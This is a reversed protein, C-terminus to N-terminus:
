LDFQSAHTSSALVGGLYLEAKMATYYGAATKLSDVPIKFEVFEEDITRDVKLLLKWKWPASSIPGSVASRRTTLLSLEMGDMPTAAGWGTVQVLLLDKGLSKDYQRTVSIGMRTDAPSKAGEPVAVGLYKGFVGDEPDSICVADIDDSEDIVKVKRTVKAGGDKARVTRTLGTLTPALPGNDALLQSRGPEPQTSYVIVGNLANVALADLDDSATLDLDAATRYVEPDGWQSGDWTSRYVAAADASVMMGSAQDYAFSSSCASNIADECGEAISFYFENENPFFILSNTTQAHANVGMGWDLADIDASSDNPFAIVEAPQELFSRNVLAGTIGTSGPFYYSSIDSGPTLRNGLAGQRRQETFGGPLGVAQNGVSVNILMWRGTIDPHCGNGSTTELFKPMLDNGTSHADIEIIPSLDGGNSHSGFLSAISFDPVGLFQITSFEPPAVTQNLPAKIFTQETNLRAKPSLSIGSALSSTMGSSQSPNVQAAALPSLSLILPLLSLRM